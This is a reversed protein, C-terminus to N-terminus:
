EMFKGFNMAEIWFKASITQNEDLFGLKTPRERSGFQKCFVDVTKFYRSTPNLLCVAKISILNLDARGVNADFYNAFYNFLLIEIGQDLVSLKFIHNNM